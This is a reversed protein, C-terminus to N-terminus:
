KDPHPQWLSYEFFTLALGSKIKHALSRVIRPLLMERSVETLGWTQGSYPELFSVCVSPSPCSGPVTM